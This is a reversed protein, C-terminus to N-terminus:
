LSREFEDILSSLTQFGQSWFTPDEINVGVKALQKAPTDSSGASLLEIYKPVFAAGQSEYQRFLALVLLQGFAYSYCYFRYHVFHSISLWGFRDQPAFQVAEGYLRRRQEMWLKSFDEVSAVSLERRAHAQQEFRTYSVQNCVTALIDEIRMALLTRRVHPDKEKELLRRMLVLEAFVSATEAMPTTPWYNLPTQKRCLYFHIGHGLEHAVTSVDELRDNYNVLVYPHLSPLMGHCFAGDRKGPRPPVDIWRREFFQRAIDAFRGDFSEFADLVLSRGEEFPVKRETSELPALVDHSGFDTLGLARAKLRMYREVLSYHRETTAMLQEVVDGSLEDDLYTPETVTAFGRRQVDLHHDQFLTNFCFNLVHSEKEFAKMLGDTARRRLTRDPSSRLARVQAVNLEEPKGNIDLTIRIRSCVETYLQSFAARGTLNKMESLKEEAESLTHPAFRRAAALHHVYSVLEPAELFRKFVEDPVTKLEVDLFRVKNLTEATVQRTRNLLAQAVEDQTQESFTLSAYMQPRYAHELLKEYERL